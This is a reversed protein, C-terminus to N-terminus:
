KGIERITRDPFEEVERRKAAALAKDIRQIAEDLALQYVADDPRSNKLGVLNSRSVSPSLPVEQKNALGRAASLRLADIEAKRERMLGARYNANAQAMSQEMLPNAEEMGPIRAKRIEDLNLRKTSETNFVIEDEPVDLVEEYLSRMKSAFGTRVDRNRYILDALNLKAVMLTRQGQWQKDKFKELTQAFWALGEEDQFPTFSVVLAQGMELRAILEAEPPPSSNLVRQYVALFDKRNLKDQRRYEEAKAWAAEWSDAKTDDSWSWLDKGLLSKWLAEEQDGPNQVSSADQFRFGPASAPVGASGPVVADAHSPQQRESVRQNSSPLM